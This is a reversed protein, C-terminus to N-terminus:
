PTLHVSTVKATIYGQSFSQEGIENIYKEKQSETIHFIEENQGFYTDYDWFALNQDKKGITIKKKFNIETIDRKRQRQM